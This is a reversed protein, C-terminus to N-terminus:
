AERYMYADPDVREDTGVRELFDVHYTKAYFHGDPRVYVLDDFKRSFGDVVGSDITNRQDGGRKGNSRHPAIGQRIAAASLRVVDGKEFKERATM